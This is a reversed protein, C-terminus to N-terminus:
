VADVLARLRAPEVLVVCRYGLRILGATEFDHLITSISTRSLNAISGLEEQSLPAEVSQAGPPDAHRCNALHLLAAACRRPSERIMMDAAISTAMLGYVIGLAGVWRWWEPNPKLFAMIEPQSMSALMVDSRAVISNPLAGGVFLPVYGFWFGRHLIHITASDPSSLATTVTASGHAIGVINGGETGAHQIGTGAAVMRWRCHALFSEAFDRPTHSLWGNNALFASYAAIDNKLLANEGCRGFWAIALQETRRL